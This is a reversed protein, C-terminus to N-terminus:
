KKPKPNGTKRPRAKPEPQDASDTEIRIEDSIIGSLEKKIKEIKELKVSIKSFLNEQSRIGEQILFAASETRSRFIGSEVLMNMKKNSEDDVRITLDTNRSSLTKDLVRKISEATKSAFKEVQNGIDEFTDKPSKKRDKAESKKEKKEETM